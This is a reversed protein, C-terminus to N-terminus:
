IYPEAYYTSGRVKNVMHYLFDGSCFVIKLILWELPSISSSRQVKLGKSLPCIVEVAAPQSLLSWMSEMTHWQKSQQDNRRKIGASEAQSWAEWAVSSLCPCHRWCAHKGSNLYWTSSMLNSLHGACLGACTTHHIVSEFSIWFM